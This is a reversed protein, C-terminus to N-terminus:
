ETNEGTQDQHTPHPTSGGTEEYVDAFVTDFTYGLPKFVEYLGAGAIQGAESNLAATMTAKDAFYLELVRHYRSQGEPSGTVNVVQRRQIKPIREVMGLFRAYGQEFETIDKGPHHFIIMFKVM